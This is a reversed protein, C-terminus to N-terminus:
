SGERYM